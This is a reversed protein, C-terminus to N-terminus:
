VPRNWPATTLPYVLGTNKWDEGADKGGEVDLCLWCCQQIVNSLETFFM